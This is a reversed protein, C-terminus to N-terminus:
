SIYPGIWFPKLLIFTKECLINPPLRTWPQYLPLQVIHNFVGTRDPGPPECRYDWCKPLRLHTSWSSTLLKLGAYGVCHFRMEVLIVFILQTHHCAGIIWSWLSFCSFQKSGPLCFHCHASIAGNYELRPSLALSQRLIFLYTFLFKLTPLSNSWSSLM